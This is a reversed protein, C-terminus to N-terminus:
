WVIPSAGRLGRPTFVERATEPAARWALDLQTSTGDRSREVTIRTPRAHDDIRTFEEDRRFAALDSISTEYYKARTLVDDDPDITLVILARTSPFNPAGTLVTGTPGQDSVQPVKLLGPGIPLLDELLLDTNGLPTGPAARTVRNKTRVVIKSPRILARTGDRTEVYLTHHRGLFVAAGATAKEDRKREIKVDARATAPFRAAASTAALLEPLSQGTACTPATVCALVLLAVARHMTPNMAASPRTDLDATL